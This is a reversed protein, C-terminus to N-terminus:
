SDPQGLQEACNDLIGSSSPRWLIRLKGHFNKETLRYTQFWMVHDEEDEIRPMDQPLSWTPLDGFQSTTQFFPSKSFLEEGWKEFRIDLILEHILGHSALVEAQCYAQENVERGGRPEALQSDDTPYAEPLGWAYQYRIIDQNKFKIREGNRDVFEVTFFARNGEERKPKLRLPAYIRSQNVQRLIGRIFAMERRKHISTAIMEDLSPIKARRHWIEHTIGQNYEKKFRDINTILMQNINQVTVNGSRYITYIKRLRQQTFPPRFMVLQGEQYSGSAVIDPLKKLYEQFQGKSKELDSRQFQVLELGGVTVLALDNPDIGEEYFGCILKDTNYYLGMACACECLVFQSPLWRKLNQDYHRRTFIGIVCSSDAIDATVKEDIRGPTPKAGTVVSFSLPRRRMLKLFWHAVDVDSLSEGAPVTKDFSHAVFVKLKQAM